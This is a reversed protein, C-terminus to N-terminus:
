QGYQAPLNIRVTVLVTELFLGSYKNVLQGATNWPPNKQPHPGAHTQRWNPFGVKAPADEKERGVETTYGGEKVVGVDAALM